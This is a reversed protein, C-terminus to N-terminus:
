NAPTKLGGMAGTAMLGVTMRELARVLINDSAFGAERSTAFEPGRRVGLYMFRADGFLAYVKGANASTSYAPLSPVWVIPFGDLTANQGRAAQYPKDGAANLGSLFQEFTRHFFYAGNAIAAEDVVARVARVVALTTDSYATKGASAAMGVTKSNDSVLVTLGKATGNVGSAAGTGAFFQHDEAAAIRRAGYQALFQGMSFAADEDIESPLVVLGGFKEATFTVFETQPSVETVASGMTLLGFATDTKLRPLKTVGGGLPYVTGVQRAIGYASVLQSVESGYSEPLPIDSASLATRQEVNACGLADKVIGEAYDRNRGELRGQNLGALLVIAGMHRACDESVQGPAASRLRGPVMRQKKLEDVSAKLNNVHEKIDGVDKKVGDAETKLGLVDAVKAEFGKLKTDLAGLAKATKAMVGEEGDDEGTKGAPAVALMAGSGLLSLLLMPAMLGAIVVLGFLALMTISHERRKIRNKSINMTNKTDNNRQGDGLALTPDCVM